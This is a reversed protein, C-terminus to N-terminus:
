YPTARDRNLKLIRHFEDAVLQLTDIDFHCGDDLGKYHHSWRKRGVLEHCTNLIWPTLMHNRTNFETLYRNVKVIVENLAKQQPHFYESKIHNWRNLDVGVVPVFVVKCHATAPANRILYYVTEMSTVYNDYIVQPDEWRLSTIKTVPNRRTIDCVGGFMLILDPPIARSLRIAKQALSNLGQSDYPVSMYSLDDRNSHDLVSDLHRGRSDSVVLVRM